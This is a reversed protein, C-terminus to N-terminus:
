YSKIELGGFIVMGKVVIINQNDPTAARVPRKDTFGGFLSVVDSKVEWNEPIILKSGGFMTFVDIVCGSPSLETQKMNFESGGFIATINGGKFNKSQVQKIGGGLISVDDIYDTVKANGTETTTYGGTHERKLNNNRRTLIIIGVGVLIAPLVIQGFTVQVGMLALSWFLLGLGMLVYGPTRREKSAVLIAGIAILLTKWSFIYGYVSFERSFNDILLLAGAAILIAGAIIRKDISKNEMTTTNVFKHPM